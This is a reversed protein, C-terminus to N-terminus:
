PPHPSPLPRDGLGRGLHDLQREFLSVGERRWRIVEELISELTFSALNQQLSKLVSRIVSRRAAGAETKSTRNTKRTAADDRFMRESRNNTPEVDPNLVFTFLEGHAYCRVLEALLNAFEKEDDTAPKEDPQYEMGLAEFTEVIAELKRRRGALSLRGDQQCRKGERFLALLKEFFERYHPQEPHALMLKIAKRLLHSWCKQAQTFRNRYVSYDDSVAVGQFSEVPLVRDVVSADRTEGYLLVTHSLSTFVWAYCRRASVKWGTEDLYVVTAAALLESLVDLEGKWLKGLHSLLADAQSKSVELRCFFSLLSRAQDQSIGICYVLYALVVAIELGYESHPLLSPVQAAQTEWPLKHLRYQVYVARGEILRWAFRDRVFCCRARDAGDPYVDVVRGVLGQKDANPRRGPSKRKRKRRTQQQRSLSYDGTFSPKKSANTAVRRGLAAELDAVKKTLREIEAAQQAITEAQQAITAAQRRVTELLDNIQRDRRRLETKLEASKM